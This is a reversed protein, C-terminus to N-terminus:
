VGVARTLGKRVVCNCDVSRFNGVVTIRRLLSRFFLSVISTRLSICYRDDTRHTVFAHSIDGSSVNLNLRFLLGLSNVHRKVHSRTDCYGNILM